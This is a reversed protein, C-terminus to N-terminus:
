KKLCSKDGQVKDFFQEEAEPYIAIHGIHGLRIRPDAYIRIGCATARLCFACDEGLRNMPAFCSVCEAFVKRLVDTTMFVAGFGCGGIEFVDDPYESATYRDVPDLSRFLCSAHPPRRAHYIGTVMDKGCFMMDDLLEEGFVMDSDLWLVHTYGEQVAKKALNDRAVYVLTGSQIVVDYDVGDCSLYKTLVCLSKVFETHMFDLSPIAIMLKM